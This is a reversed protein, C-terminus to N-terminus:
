TLKIERYGLGTNCDFKGAIKCAELPEKGSAMAAMAYNMGSGISYFPENVAVFQKLNWATFIAKNGTLGVIEINKVNPPKEYEWPASFYDMCQTIADVGGAFGVVVKDTNFLAQASQIPLEFMKGNCKFKLGGSHTLQLDSAMTMTKKSVAVTTM